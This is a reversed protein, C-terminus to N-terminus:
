EPNSSSLQNFYMDKYLIWARKQVQSSRNIDNKHQTKKM